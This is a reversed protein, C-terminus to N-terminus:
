RCHLSSHKVLARFLKDAYEDELCEPHWQMGVVFPHNESEIAEIIGDAAIASIKLGAGLKKVAQHHFSNVRINSQRIIKFLKTKEEIVIAHFPYDRPARQNHSLKTNIDQYLTGGMAVNLVQCGRCIGLVPLSSGLIKQLLNYEFNDRIPNIEGLRRDPLEGWYKPDMDGGGSFLFGNCMNIYHNIIEEDEVPPLIIATGGARNIANIYDNKLWTFDAEYDYNGTIGIIPKM